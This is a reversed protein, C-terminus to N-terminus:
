SCRCAANTPARRGHTEQRATPTPNSAKVEPGNMGADDYPNPARQVQDVTIQRQERAPYSYDDYASAPSGASAMLPLSMALTMLLSRM